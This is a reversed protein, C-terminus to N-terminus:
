PTNGSAMQALRHAAEDSGLEQARAYWRRAQEVDGQMGRVGLKALVAPDYTEALALAGKAVGADATRQLVTRATAFDGVAVFDKGQKLLLEIEQTDM